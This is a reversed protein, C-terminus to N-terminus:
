NPKSPIKMKVKKEAEAIFLLEFQDRVLETTKIHLERELSRRPDSRLPANTALDKYLVSICMTLADVVMQSTIPIKEEGIQVAWEKLKM